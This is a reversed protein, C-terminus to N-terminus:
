FLSSSNQFYTCATSKTSKKSALSKPTADWDNDWDDDVVILCFRFIRSSKMSNQAPRSPEANKTGFFDEDDSWSDAVRNDFHRVRFFCLSKKNTNGGSWDDMWFDSM